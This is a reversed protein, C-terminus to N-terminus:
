FFSCTKMGSIALSLINKNHCGIVFENGPKWVFFILNPQSYLYVFM